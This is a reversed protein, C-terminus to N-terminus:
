TLKDIMNTTAKSVIAFLHKRSLQRVFPRHFDSVCVIFCQEDRLFFSLVVSGHFHTSKSHMNLWPVCERFSSVM